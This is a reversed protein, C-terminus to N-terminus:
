FELKFALLNPRRDERESPAIRPRHASVTRLGGVVQLLDVKDWFRTREACRNDDQRANSHSQGTLDIEAEGRARMPSTRPDVASGTVSGSSMEFLGNGWFQYPSYFLTQRSSAKEPNLSLSVRFILSMLRWHWGM